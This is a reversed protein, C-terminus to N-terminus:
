TSQRCSSSRLAHRDLRMGASTAGLGSLRRTMSPQQVPIPTATPSVTEQTAELISTGIPKSQDQDAYPNSLLTSSRRRRMDYLHLSELNAPSVADAGENLETASYSDSPSDTYQPAANRIAGYSVQPVIVPTMPVPSALFTPYFSNMSQYQQQYQQQVRATLPQQSAMYQVEPALDIGMPSQLAFGQAFGPSMAIMQGYQTQPTYNHHSNRWQYRQLGEIQAVVHALSHALERERTPCKGIKNRIGKIAQKLQRPSTSPTAFELRKLKASLGEFARM